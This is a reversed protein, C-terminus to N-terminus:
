MGIKYFRKPANIPDPETMSGDDVFITGNGQGIVQEILTWTGDVSDSYYVSYPVGPTCDFSITTVGNNYTIGTIVPEGIDVLKLKAFHDAEFIYDDSLIIGIAIEKGDFGRLLTKNSWPIAIKWTCNIGWGGCAYNLDDETVLRGPFGLGDGPNNYTTRGQYPLTFMPNTDFIESWQGDDDIQRFIDPVGVNINVSKSAYGNTLTLWYNDPGMFWNDASGDIYVTATTSPGKLGLYLNNDDWAAYILTQGQYLNSDSVLGDNSYGWKDSVLTWRWGFTTGTDIYPTAKAIHDRIKYAVNLDNKDLVGDGDSDQSNPNTGHFVLAIAEELDSIGDADTDATLPSSGFTSETVPLAKTLGSPSTDPFGDNDADLATIIKTYPLKTATYNAPYMNRLIQGNIAYDRGVWNPVAWIGHNFEYKVLDNGAFISDISHNTEHIAVFDNMSLWQCTGIGRGFLWGGGGYNGTCTYAACTVLDFDDAASYGAAALDSEMVSWISFAGDMINRNVEVITYDIWLRFGSNIWYFKALTDFRDRIEQVEAPTMPDYNSGTDKDLYIMGATKLRLFQVEGPLAGTNIVDQPTWRESGDFSDTFSVGYYLRTNPTLGTVTVEHETTIAPNNVVTGYANTEGYRVSSSCPQSTKWRFIINQGKAEIKLDTVPVTFNFDTKVIRANLVDTILVAGDSRIAVGGLIRGLDDIGGTYHRSILEDGAKLFRLRGDYYTYGNNPDEGAIYLNGASDFALSNPRYVALYTKQYVGSSNFVEIRCNGYDAVYVEGTLPNVAVDMPRDFGTHDRKVVATSGVVGNNGWDTDVGFNSNLRQIRHNGTDAVYIKGNTKDVFIGKPSNFQGPATGFSGTQNQFIGDSNFCQILSNGSDAVYINDNIDVAVDWPTNFEGNGEGFFGFSFLKAGNADFITIRNGGSEALITRNNSDSCIGYPNNLSIIGLGMYYDELIEGATRARNSIRFEDFAAQATLGGDIAAGISFYSLSFDSIVINNTTRDVQQGNVYFAMEQKSGNWTAAIHYWNGAIWNYGSTATGREVYTEVNPTDPDDGWQMFRLNNAGDICLVMGNNFSRGAEFFYHGIGLNGNWDPKIWFEVTGQSAIINGANSYQIFGPNGTHVAGNVLGTVYSTGIISNPNEGDVGNLSGDFRLLLTTAADNPLETCLSNNLFLIFFIVTIIITFVQRM